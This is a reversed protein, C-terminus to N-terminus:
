SATIYVMVINVRTGNTISGRVNGAGNGAGTGYLWFQQGPDAAYFPIGNDYLPSPYLASPVKFLIGWSNSTKPTVSMQIVALRGIKYALGANKTSNPFTCSATYDVIKCKDDITTCKDNLVKGQYASLAEGNAFSSHTLDNIVKCHGYNATTGLGYTSGTSAHSTPAKGNINNANTTAQTNLEKLTRLDTNGDKIRINADIKFEAM